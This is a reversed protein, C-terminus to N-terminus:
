ILIEPFFNQKEKQHDCQSYVMSQSQVSMQLWKFLGLISSVGVPHCRHYLVHILKIGEASISLPAPCQLTNLIENYNWKMMENINLFSWMKAKFSHIHIGIIQKYKRLVKRLQKHSLIIDIYLPMFHALLSAKWRSLFLLSLFNVRKKM